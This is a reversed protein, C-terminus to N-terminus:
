GVNKLLIAYAIYISHLHMTSAINERISMRSFSNTPYRDLRAGWGWAPTGWWGELDAVPPGWQGHFFECGSRM